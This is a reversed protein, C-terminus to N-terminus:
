ANDVKRWRQGSTDTYESVAARWPKDIQFIEDVYRQVLPVLAPDLIKDAIREPEFLVWRGNLQTLEGSTFLSGIFHKMTIKISARNDLRATYVREFEPVDNRTDAIHIGSATDPTANADHSWFSM